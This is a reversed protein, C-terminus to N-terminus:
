SVKGQNYYMEPCRPLQHRGQEIKSHFLRRAGTKKPSTCHLKSTSQHQFARLWEASMTPLTSLKNMNNPISLGDDGVEPYDDTILWEMHTFINCGMRHSAEVYSVKMKPSQDTHNLMTWKM